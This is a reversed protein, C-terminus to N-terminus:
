QAVVALMAAYIAIGGLAAAVRAIDRLGYRSESYFVEVERPDVRRDESKAKILTSALVIAHM